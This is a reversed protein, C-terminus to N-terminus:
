SIMPTKSFRDLVIFHFIKVQNTRIQDFMKNCMDLTAHKITGLRVATTNSWGPRSDAGTEMRLFGDNLARLSIMGMQDACVNGVSEPINRILSSLEFHALSKSPITFGATRTRVARNETM